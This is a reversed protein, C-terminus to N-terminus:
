KDKRTQIAENLKKLEARCQEKAKRSGTDCASKKSNNGLDIDRQVSYYVCSSLLLVCSLCYIIKMINETVNVPSEGFMDAIFEARLM